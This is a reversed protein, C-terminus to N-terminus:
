LFREIENKIDDCIDDSQNMINIILEKKLKVNKKKFFTQMITGHRRYM